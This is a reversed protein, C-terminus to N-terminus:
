EDSFGVYPAVVTDDEFLEHNVLRGLFGWELNRGQESECEMLQPIIDNAFTWLEILVMPRTNKEFRGHAEWEKVLTKMKESSAIKAQKEALNLLRKKDKEPLVIPM